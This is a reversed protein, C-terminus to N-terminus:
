TTLLQTSCLARELSKFTRHLSLFERKATSYLRKEQANKNRMYMYLKDSLLCRPDLQAVAPLTNARGESEWDWFYLAEELCSHLEDHYVLLRFPWRDREAAWRYAAHASDGAEELLDAFAFMELKAGESRILERYVRQLDSM